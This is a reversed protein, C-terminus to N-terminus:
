GPPQISQITCPNADASPQSFRRTATTPQKMPVSTPTNGPSPGVAETARSKGKVAM